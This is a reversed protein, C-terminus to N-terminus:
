APAGWCGRFLYLTIALPILYSLFSWVNLRDQEKAELGRRVEARLAEEEKIRDREEPTLQNM